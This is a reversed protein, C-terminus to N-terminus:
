PGRDGGKTVFNIFGAGASNGYLASSGPIVEIRRISDPDILNLERATDNLTSTVPAGDILVVPKRGRVSTYTNVSTNTGRSIGPVLNALIDSILPAVLIQREIEEADIVQVSQPMTRLSAPLRSGSVTITETAAPSSTQSVAPLALLGATVAFTSQVATWLTRRAINRTMRPDGM